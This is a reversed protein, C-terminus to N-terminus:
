VVKASEHKNGVVLFKEKNVNKFSRACADIFAQRTKAVARSRRAGRVPNWEKRRFPFFDVAGGDCLM